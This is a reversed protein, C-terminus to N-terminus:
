ERPIHGREYHLGSERLLEHWRGRVWRELETQMAQEDRDTIAPEDASVPPEIHGYPRGDNFIFQAVELKASGYAQDDSVYNRWIGTADEDRM